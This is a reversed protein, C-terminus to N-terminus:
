RYREIGGIESELDALVARIKEHRLPKEVVAFVGARIAARVEPSERPEATLLVIRAEPDTELMAHIVDLGDELHVGMFEVFALQPRHERFAALTEEADTAVIIRDASTGLKHLIELLIRRIPLAEDAILVRQPTAVVVEETAERNKGLTPIM